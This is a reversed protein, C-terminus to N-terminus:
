FIGLIIVVYLKSPIDLKQGIDFDSTPWIFQKVQNSCSSDVERDTSRNLRRVEPLQTLTEERETHDNKSDFIAMYTYTILGLCTTIFGFYRTRDDIKENSSMWQITKWATWMM